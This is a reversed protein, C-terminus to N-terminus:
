LARRSLPLFMRVEYAENLVTENHSQTAWLCHQVSLDLDGLTLSKLIFYRAPTKCVPEAEASGVVPSTKEAVNSQGAGREVPGSERRVRCVLRVNHFRSDAFKAVAGDCAEKTRYNVFACNSKSILKVSEIEQTL